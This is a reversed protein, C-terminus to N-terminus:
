SWRDHHCYCKPDPPTVCKLVCHHPVYGRYHKFSPVTLPSYINQHLGFEVIGVSASRQVIGLEKM